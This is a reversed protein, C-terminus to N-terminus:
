YLSIPNTKAVAELATDGRFSQHIIFGSKEFYSKILNSVMRDDEILLITSVKKAKRNSTVDFM